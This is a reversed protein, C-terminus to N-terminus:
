IKGSLQYYSLDETEARKQLSELALILMNFVDKHDRQLVDISRREIVKPQAGVVATFKSTVSRPNYPSEPESPKGPNPSYGPRQPGVPTKTPYAPYNSDEYNYGSRQSSYSPYGPSYVSNGYSSKQTPVPTSSYQPESPTQSYEPESTYWTPTSYGSQTSSGYSPPNDSNQGYESKYTYASDSSSFAYSSYHHGNYPTSSPNISIITSYDIARCSAALLILGITPLKLTNNSAGM